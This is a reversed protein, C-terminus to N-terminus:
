PLVDAAPTRMAPTRGAALRRLLDVFRPATIQLSYFQEARRRGAEGMRRRLDPDHHLRSLASVWEAGQAALFGTQGPVVIDRNAGVPSAVVPRAGAMFQILKYGCKGREWPADPLPMVGVDCRAIQAAETDQSWAVREVPFGALATPAAGILLLRLPIHTTLEALAPRLLDLYSSTLPSGVWGVTLPEGLGKRPRPAPPYHRLDIVTPLEAITRAGAKEARARLYASGVVVLDAAKMVRDIKAGLVRRVLPNRHRDYAHFIADDYDVVIRAGAMKFLGIEVFAPIWPLAEKEIWVLDYRSLRLLVRLRALYRRLIGAPGAPLGCYRACLYADSLFPRIEATIGAASLAERYILCRQRSSAGLRDYRTL